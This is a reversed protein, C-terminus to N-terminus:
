PAEQPEPRPPPPAQAIHEFYYGLRSQPLLEQLLAQPLQGPRLSRQIGAGPEQALDLLPQGGGGAPAPLLVLPRLPHAPHVRVVLGHRGDVLQVLTGPPYVGMMRIFAALAEKDFGQRQQAYLHSLAEHPTLALRGELPNCLRDYANVLALVSGAPDLDEALLALPYGSGDSREHHQAMAILVDSPLEMREGLAVSEGVHSRYRQLAAPALPAGPEAIHAPLTSKGIDHLLAALGLRSLAGAEMGLQRGLLLALVMVNVAHGAADHGPASALLRIAHGEGECLAQVCDHVLAEAQTRAQAPAQVVSGAIQEYGGMAQRYGQACRSVADHLAEATQPADPEQGHVPAEAGDAAAGEGGEPAPVGSRAPVYRVTRVGLARLEQIQEESTLRFSNSVFPHRMWGVSLQIFMGVRLQDIDIQISSTM